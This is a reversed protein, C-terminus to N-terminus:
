KRREGRLWGEIVPYVERGSTLGVLTDDHGADVAFGQARGFVIMTKDPSGIHEYLYTQIPPPAFRDASGCTILVPVQINGISRAYNWRKSADWLEGDTSLAMYQKMLGISPVDVAWTGLAEYVKPSVNQVNFFLNHVSTRVDQTLQEGRLEGTLQRQRTRIMEQFFPLILQGDTMTVQSGVTVLQGIGPNGYRSLHCLAVIGGMSHGIWAVQPAGTHHRVLRVLAPVDHAIHDDMTYNAYKPDISTYGTPAFKDRTLKRVAGGLLADPASDLKFVWKQSLGSGRLDVVWVDYGAQSLFRPLSCSPDLDWFSSNYTLGHCLIVPLAGPRPQGAPPFRRAVLTWGDATRVPFTSPEANPDILRKVNEPEVAKRLTNRAANEFLKGFDQARGLAPVMWLGVAIALGLLRKVSM